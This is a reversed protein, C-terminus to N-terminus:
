QRCFWSTPVVILLKAPKHCWLGLCVCLTLGHRLSSSSFVLAAHFFYIWICDRNQRRILPTAIPCALCAIARPRRCSVMQVMTFIMILLICTVHLSIDADGRPAGERTVSSTSAKEEHHTPRRKWVPVASVRM